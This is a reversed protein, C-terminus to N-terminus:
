SFELLQQEAMRIVEDDTYNTFIRDLLVDLVASYLRAFEDEEMNAFSISHAEPRCSGDMRFLMEYFGAQITVDKRYRDFNKRPVGYKTNIEGPKWYTFGLNLLAFFKAHFKPNRMQTLKCRIVAGPKYKKLAEVGGEDMPMLGNVTRVLTIEM